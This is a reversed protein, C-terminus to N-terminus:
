CPVYTNEGEYHLPIKKLDPFTTPHGEEAVGAKAVIDGKRIQQGVIM